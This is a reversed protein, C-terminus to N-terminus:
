CPFRAQTTWTPPVLLTTPKLNSLPLGQLGLCIGLELRKREVLLELAPPNANLGSPLNRTTISRNGFSMSTKLTWPSLVRDGITTLRLAFGPANETLKAGFPAARTESVPAEPTVLPEAM